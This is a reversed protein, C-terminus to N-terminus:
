TSTLVEKHCVGAQTSLHESTKMSMDEVYGHVDFRCTIVYDHLWAVIGDILLM